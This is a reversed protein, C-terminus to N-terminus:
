RRNSRAVRKRIADSGQPRDAGDTHAQSKVKWWDFATGIKGTRAAADSKKLRCENVFFAMLTDTAEGRPNSLVSIGLGTMRTRTHTSLRGSALPIGRLANKAALLPVSAVDRFSRALLENRRPGTSITSVYRLADDIDVLAKTVKSAFKRRQGEGWRADVRLWKEADPHDGHWGYAACLQAVIGLLRETNNASLGKSVQLAQLQEEVGRRRAEISEALEDDPESDADDDPQERPRASKHHGRTLSGPELSQPPRSRGVSV